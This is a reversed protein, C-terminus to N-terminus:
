DNSDFYIGKLKCLRRQMKEREDMTLKESRFRKELNEIEAARAQFEAPSESFRFGGTKEIFQDKSRGM